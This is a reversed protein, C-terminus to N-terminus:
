LKPGPNRTPLRHHNYTCTIVIITTYRIAKMEEKGRVNTDASGGHNMLTLPSLAINKELEWHCAKPYEKQNPDNHVQDSAYRFLRSVATMQDATEIRKKHSMFPPKRIHKLFLKWLHHEFKVDPVWDDTLVSAVPHLSIFSIQKM